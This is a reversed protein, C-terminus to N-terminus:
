QYVKVWDIIMQVPLDKPDVKGVWSGGLQMDLMFYFPQDFPWQSPDVDELKPYIFTEKGNLTFVLKDPFWEMGYVNYKEPNVAVTNSHPPISKQKLELTYYSHVTQFIKEEFSLREMLDIEGNKPYAGYKPQDALMWLAPWAGQASELKAKIEIKGYQYAFKGKTSVGGTLYPVTDISRDPNVIGRLYLKGDKIHICDEHPSMYNGWDASNREIVNWKAADLYDDKEFHEEWILKWSSQEETANKSGGCGLFLFLGCVLLSYVKCTTSTM